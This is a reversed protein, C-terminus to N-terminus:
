NKEKDDKKKPRPTIVDSVRKMPNAIAKDFESKVYETYDIKAGGRETVVKNLKDIELYFKNPVVIANLETDITIRM